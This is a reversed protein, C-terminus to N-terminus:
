AAEGGSSEEEEGEWLKLDPRHQQVNKRFMARLLEADDDTGMAELAVHVGTRDVFNHTIALTAKESVNLVAHHWMSPVFVIDGPEQVFEFCRVVEVDDGASKAKEKFHNKVAVKIGELDEHFWGWVDDWLDERPASPIKDLTRTHLLEKPTDPHFLVWRKAGQALANWAHTGLPDTHVPSGSGRPGVLLWSNPPRHAVDLHQFLDDAAFIDPVRYLPEQNNSSANASALVTDLVIADFVLLPNRDNNTASYVLFDAIGMTIEDGDVDAGIQMPHDGLLAILEALGGRKRVIAWDNMMGGFLGPLSSLVHATRFEEPSLPHANCDTTKCGMSGCWVPTTRALLSSCRRPSLAPTPTPPRAPWPQDRPWHPRIRSKAADVLVHIPGLEDGMTWTRNLM